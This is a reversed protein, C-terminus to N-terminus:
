HNLSQDLLHKESEDCFLLAFFKKPGVMEGDLRSAM